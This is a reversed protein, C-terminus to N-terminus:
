IGQLELWANMKSDKSYKEVLSNAKKVIPSTEGFLTYYFLTYKSGGVLKEEMSIINCIKEMEKIFYQKMLKHPLGELSQYNAKKHLERRISLEKGLREIDIEEDHKLFVVIDGNPYQDLYFDSSEDSSFSIKYEPYVLSTYIMCKDKLTPNNKVVKPYNEKIVEVIKKAKNLDANIFKKLRTM